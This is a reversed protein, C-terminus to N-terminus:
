IINLHMKKPSGPFSFRDVTRTARRNGARARFAYLIININYMINNNNWQPPPTTYKRLHFETRFICEPFIHGDRAAIRTWHARRRFFFEGVTRRLSEASGTESVIIQCVATVPRTPGHEPIDSSFYIRVQGKRTSAACVKPRSTTTIIIDDHVFKTKRNNIARNFQMVTLHVGHNNYVTFRALDRHRDDSHCM